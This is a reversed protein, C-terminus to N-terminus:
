GLRYQAPGRRKSARTVVVLLGLRELSTRADVFKRRPWGMAEAMANAVVFTEDDRWRRRLKMLLALAFPDDGLRDFKSVPLGVLMEGGFRNTGAAEYGWAKHAVAVAESHPMPPAFGANVRGVHELLAELSACGRAARMAERFLTENRQGAEATVPGVTQGIALASDNAPESALAPKRMLPLSSVDALSGSLFEYDGKAGHSPPAVLFGGHGLIDIPVGKKPKIKRPEGGYRYWLHFHGSATRVKIPTDGYQSITDALLNECTSDIDVAALRSHPGCAIGLAPADAFRNAYSRSAPLGINLPNRVMPKKADNVPFSAMGAEAYRPQWQGFIGGGTM